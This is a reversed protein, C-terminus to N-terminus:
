SNGGIANSSCPSPLFVLDFVNSASLASLSWFVSCLKPTDAFTSSTATPGAIVLYSSLGASPTLTLLIAFRASSM